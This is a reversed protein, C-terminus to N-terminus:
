FKLGTRIETYQKIAEVANDIGVPTINICLDYNSIGGWAKNTHFDYYNGRKKDTKKIIDAAKERPVGYQSVVREIKTDNDATIFLKILLPFDKLIYDACRGVIVCPSKQALEKILDAQMQYVRDNLPLSLDGWYSYNGEMGYAGMALSYLLSNTPREDVSEFIKENMGNKKAAVTILEKDYFEVGLKESLKKGVERGGSGYERGITIVFHKKM